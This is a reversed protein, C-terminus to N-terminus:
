ADSGSWRTSETRMAACGRAFFGDARDERRRRTEESKRRRRHTGDLAPTVATASSRAPETRSSLHLDRRRCLRCGMDGCRGYRVRRLSVGGGEKPSGSLRDSRSADFAPARQASGASRCWPITAGLGQMRCISPFRRRGLSPFRQWDRGFPAGNIGSRYWQACWERESYASAALPLPRLLRGQTKRM